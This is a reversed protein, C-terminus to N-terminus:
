WGVTQQYEVAVVVVNFNSVDLSWSFVFVDHVTQFM